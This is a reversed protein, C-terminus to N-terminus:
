YLPIAALFRRRDQEFRRRDQEFDGLGDSQNLSSICSMARRALLQSGPAAMMASTHLSDLPVSAVDSGGIPKVRSRRV